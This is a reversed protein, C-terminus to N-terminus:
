LTVFFEFKRFGKQLPPPCKGESIELNLSDSQARTKGGLGGQSLGVQFLGMHKQISESLYVISGDSLLVVLFGDMAQLSVPLSLDYVISYSLTFPWLTLSSLPFM